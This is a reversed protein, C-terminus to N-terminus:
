GKARRYLGEAVDLLNMLQQWEPANANNSTAWERRIQQRLEDIPNTNATAAPPESAPAPESAPPAAATDQLQRAKDALALARRDLNDPLHPRDSLTQAFLELLLKRVSDVWERQQPTLATDKQVVKARELLPSVRDSVSPPLQPIDALSYRALDTMLQRVQEIWELESTQINSNSM